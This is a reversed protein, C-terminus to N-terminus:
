LTPAPRWFAVLRRLAIIIMYASGLPIAGYVLHMPLGLGPSKQFQLFQALRATGLILAVALVIWLLDVLAFFIARGRDALRDTLMEM